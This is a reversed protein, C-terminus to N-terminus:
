CQLCTFTLKQLYVVDKRASAELHTTASTELPKELAAYAVGALKAVLAVLRMCSPATCGPKTRSTGNHLVAKKQSNICCSSTTSGQSRIQKEHM